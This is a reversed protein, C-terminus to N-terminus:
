LGLQNKTKYLKLSAEPYDQDNDSLFKILSVYDDNTNNGIWDIVKVGEKYFVTPNYNNCGTQYM